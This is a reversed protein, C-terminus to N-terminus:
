KGGAALAISIAHGCQSCIDGKPQRKGCNACEVYSYPGLLQFYVCVGVAFTFVLITCGLCFLVFCVVPMCMCVRRNLLVVVVIPSSSSNESRSWDFRATAICAAVRTRVQLIDFVLRRNHEPTDERGALDILRDIGLSLMVRCNHPHGMLAALTCALAAEQANTPNSVGVGYTHIYPHISLLLLLLLLM